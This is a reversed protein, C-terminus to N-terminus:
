GADFGALFIRRPSVHYRKRALELAEFVRQEALAVHARGQCWTYGAGDAGPPCELTGRPAAGLYNSLSVLPMIRKLQTEDDGSGHLWILLPYAYNTEYHLPAFFAHPHVGRAPSFSSAGAKPAPLTGSSGVETAPAFAQIRNM